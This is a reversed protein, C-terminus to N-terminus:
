EENDNDDTEDDGTGVEVGNGEVAKTRKSPREFKVDRGFLDSAVASLRVAEDDSLRATYWKAGDRPGGREGRENIYREVASRWIRRKYEDTPPVIADKLFSHSKIAAGFAGTSTLGLLGMAAKISILEDKPQTAM